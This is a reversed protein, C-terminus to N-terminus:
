TKICKVSKFYRGIKCAILFLRPSINYIWTEILLLWGHPPKLELLNENRLHLLLETQKEIYAENTSLRIANFVLVSIFSRIYSIDFTSEIKEIARKLSKIVKLLDDIKRPNYANIISGTRIFYFYYVGMEFKVRRAKTLARPTFEADEYYVDEMFRLGARVLFARRFVFLVVYTEYGFVLRLFEEGSMTHALMRRHMKKAPMFAGKENVRRLQMWLADLANTELIKYLYNLSNSKIWDDADVFWIYRGSAVMLGENRAAGLGKNTKSIIRINPNNESLSKIITLTNDTSGDNIIIIEYEEKSLDQDLCSLICRNIYDGVNFAPIIISFKLM